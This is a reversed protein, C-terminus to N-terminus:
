SMTLNSVIWLILLSLLVSYWIFIKPEWQKCWNILVEFRNYTIKACVLWINSNHIAMNWWTIFNNIYQLTCVYMYTCVHIVPVYLYKYYTVFFLSNFRNNARKFIQWPYILSTIYFLHQVRLSTSTEFNFM